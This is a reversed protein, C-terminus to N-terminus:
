QYMRKAVYSNQRLENMWVTFEHELKEELLRSRLERHVTEDLAKVNSDTRALIKILLFGAKTKIPDSISGIKLAFAARDIEPLLEGRKFSGADTFLLEVGRKQEATAIAKLSATRAMRKRIQALRMRKAEHADPTESGTTPLLLQQLTVSEDQKLSNATQRYYKEVDEDTVKVRSRVKQNIVKMREIQKKLDERYQQFSIGQNKLEQQLRKRDIKNQAVVDDIARDVEADTASLGLEKVQQELLRETILQDLAEKYLQTRASEKDRANSRAEIKELYPQTAKDVDAKTIIENNVIAAVAEVIEAQAPWFPTMVLYTYTLAVSAFRWRNEGCSIAAISPSNV